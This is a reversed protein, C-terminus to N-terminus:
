DADSREQRSARIAWIAALAIVVVVIGVFVLVTVTGIRVQDPSLNPTPTPSPPFEVVAALTITATPTPPPRTPTHTATPTPTPSATVTPSPSPAEVPTPVVTPAPTPQVPTRIPAGKIPSALGSATVAYDELVISPGADTAIRAVLVLEARDGPALPGLARFTLTQEASPGDMSWETEDAEAREFSVDAPLTVQLALDELAAEGAVIVTFTWTLPQGPVAIEPAVNVQLSLPPTQWAIVLCAALLTAWLYTKTTKLQSM